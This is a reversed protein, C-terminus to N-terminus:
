CKEYLHAWIQNCTLIVRDQNYIVRRARNWAETGYPVRISFQWLLERRFQDEIKEKVEKM